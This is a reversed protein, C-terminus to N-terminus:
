EWAKVHWTVASEQRAGEPLDLLGNDIVRNEELAREGAEDVSIVSFKARMGVPEKLIMPLVSSAGVRVETIRAKVYFAPHPNRPDVNPVEEVVFYRRDAPLACRIAATVDMREGSQAPVYLSIPYDLACPPRDEGSVWFLVAGVVAIAAGLLFPWVRLRRPKEPPVPPVREQAEQWLRVMTPVDTGCTEAWQRAQKETPVAQGNLWRSVTAKSSYVQQALEQLGLNAKDRGTRLETALAAQAPALDPSLDRM